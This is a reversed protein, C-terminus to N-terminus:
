RAGGITPGDDLGTFPAEAAVCLHPASGVARKCSPCPLDVWQRDARAQMEELANRMAVCEPNKCSAEPM